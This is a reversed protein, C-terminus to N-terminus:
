EKTVFLMRAQIERYISLYDFYSESDGVVVPEIILKIVREKPNIIKGLKQEFIGNKQLESQDLYGKAYVKNGEENSIKYRYPIRIKNDAKDIAFQFAGIEDEPSVEFYKEMIEKSSIKEIPLEEKNADEIVKNLEDKNKIYSSFDYYRYNISRFTDVGIFIMLLTPIILKMKELGIKKILEIIFWMIFPSLVLFYRGQVGEITSAGTESWSFWFMVMIVVITGFSAFGLITLSFWSLISKGYDVFARCLFYLLASIVTLITLLDYKYDLWGFYGLYSQLYFERKEVFTNWVTNLLYLPDHFFVKAQYSGLIYSKFLSSRLIILVVINLLIVVFIGITFSLWKSKRAFTIISKLIPLVALLIMLYYGPKVLLLFVLLVFLIFNSINKVKKDNISKTTLAFIIPALILPLADYSVETVQHLVMPQLAYAYVIWRYRDSIRISIYLSLVFFLFGALRGMYLTLVPYNSLNGVYVGIFSPTYSLFNGLNKTYGYFELGRNEDKYFLSTILFKNDYKFAINNAEMKEPLAKLRSSILWGSATTISSVNKFHIIEDAKQFPPVFFVFIFGFFVIYFWIAYSILKNSLSM